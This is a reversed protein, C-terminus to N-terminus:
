AFKEHIMILKDHKQSKGFPIFVAGSKSEVEFFQDDFFVGTGKSKCIKRNEDLIYGQHGQITSRCVFNLSGKKIVARAKVGNGIFEVV